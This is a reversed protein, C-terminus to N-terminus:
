DQLDQNQCILQINTQILIALIQPNDPNQVYINFIFVAISTNLILLTDIFLGTLGKIRSIRIRVFEMNGEM